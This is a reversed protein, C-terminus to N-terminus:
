ILLQKKWEEWKWENGTRGTDKGDTTYLAAKNWGPVGPCPKGSIDYHRVVRKLPIDYLAMLYRTLRAALALAAPTFQWGDHNPLAATTGRQLTSCIEISVTNRNTAQSYLQGGGSYKNKADGVAWCFYSDLNPSVQVITADDVVFDASASRQMFVQRTQMATGPRSTSGATYHIAIYKVTRGTLRTIHTQIPAPTISVDFMRALTAPGAVGDAQLGQQRQWAKVAETTKTGWVGDITQCGAIRQITRVVDGRSGQKYTKKSM